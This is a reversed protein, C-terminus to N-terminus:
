PAAPTPQFDKVAVQGAREARFRGQNVTYILSTMRYDVAQTEITKRLKMLMSLNRLHVTVEQTATSFRPVTMRENSLGEGVYSGNLYIKHVAGDLVVEEPQENQVRVTFVATTEWATASTFVMNVLSVQVGERKAFTACSCLLTLLLVPGLKWNMAGCHCIVPVRDVSRRARPARPFELDWIGFEM